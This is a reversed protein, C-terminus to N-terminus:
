QFPNLSRVLVAQQSPTESSPRAERSILFSTINQRPIYPLNTIEVINSVASPRFVGLSYYADSAQLWFQYTEQPSIEPLYRYRLIGRGQEPSFFYNAEAQPSLATGSLRATYITGSGIFEIFNRYSAIFENTQNVQNELYQQRDKLAKIEEKIGSNASDFYFFLIIISVLLLGGAIYIWKTNQIYSNGDTLVGNGKQAASQSGPAGEKKPRRIEKSILKKEGPPIPPLDEVKTKARRRAEEERTEPRSARLEQQREETSKEKIEKKVPEPDKPTKKVAERETTKKRDSLIKAKIEDQYSLLKRAVKDKLEPAPTEEELVVPILAILNQLEGLENHPLEGGSEIYDKVQTFNKKDMCGAAFASVMEHIVKDAM